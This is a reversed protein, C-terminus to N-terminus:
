PKSLILLIEGEREGLVKARNAFISLNESRFHLKRPAQGRSNEFLDYDVPLKRGGIAVIVSNAVDAKDVEEEVRM